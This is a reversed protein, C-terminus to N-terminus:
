RPSLLNLPGHEDQLVHSVLRVNDCGFVLVLFPRVRVLRGLLPGTLATYELEKIAARTLM